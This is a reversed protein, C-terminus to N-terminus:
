RVPDPSSETVHGQQIREVALPTGLEHRHQPNRRYFALCHFLLVPDCQVFAPNIKLGGSGPRSIGLDHPLDDTSWRVSVDILRWEPGRFQERTVARVVRMADWSAGSRAPGRAVVVGSPSLWVETDRGDDLVIFVACWGALVFAAISLFANVANLREATSLVFVCGAGLLVTGGWRLFAREGARVLVVAPEGSPRLTDLRLRVTARHAPFGALGVGVSTAVLLLGLALSFSTLALPGGEYRNQAAGGLLFVATGLNLSSLLVSAAGSAPEWGDPLDLARIGDEPPHAALYKLRVSHVVAVVFQMAAVMLAVAIPEVDVGGTQRYTAAREAITRRCRILHALVHTSDAAHQCRSRGPLAPFRLCSSPRPTKPCAAM